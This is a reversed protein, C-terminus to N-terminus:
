RAVGDARHVAHVSGCGCVSRVGSGEKPSQYRDSSELQCFAAFMIPANWTKRCTRILLRGCSVGHSLSGSTGGTEVLLHSGQTRPRYSSFGAIAQFGGEGDSGSTWSPSHGCRGRCIGWGFLLLATAPIRVWLCQSIIRM